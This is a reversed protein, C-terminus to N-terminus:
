KLETLEVTATGSATRFAINCRAPISIDLREGAALLHDTTLATQVANSGIRYRADATSRMSLRRCTATLVTNVSTTSASVQRAVSPEGLPEVPQNQSALEGGVIEM